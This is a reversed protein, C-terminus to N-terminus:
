IPCSAASNHGLFSTKLIAASNKFIKVNPWTVTTNRIEKQTYKISITHNKMSIHRIWSKWSPPHRGDQIKSTWYHARQFALTPSGIWRWFLGDRFQKTKLFDCKKHIRKAVSLCAWHKRIFQYFHKLIDLIVLKHLLLILSILSVLAQTCFSYNQVQLQCWDDNIWELSLQDHRSHLHSCRM